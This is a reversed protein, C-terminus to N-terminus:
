LAVPVTCASAWARASPASETPATRPRYRAQNTPRPWEGDTTTRDRTVSPIKSPPQLAVRERDILEDGLCHAVEQGLIPDIAPVSPLRWDLDSASVGVAVRKFTPEGGALM